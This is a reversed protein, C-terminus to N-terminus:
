KSGATMQEILYKYTDFQDDMVDRPIRGTGTKFDMGWDVGFRVPGRGELAYSAVIAVVKAAKRGKPTDHTALTKFHEQLTRRRQQSVNEYFGEGVGLVKRFAVAWRWEEDPLSSPAMYEDKDRTVAEDMIIFDPRNGIIGSGMTRPVGMGYAAGLAARKGAARKSTLQAALLRGLENLDADALGHTELDVMVRSGDLKVQAASVEKRRGM